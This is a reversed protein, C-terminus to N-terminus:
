PKVLLWELNALLYHHPHTFSTPLFLFHVTSSVLEKQKYIVM